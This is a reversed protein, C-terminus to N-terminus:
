SKGPEPFRYDRYQERLTLKSLKGTATHPLSSVFIVDDPLWWRAMRTAMCALIDARDPASGPRAVVLLVPREGWRPHALGIAAAEQVDAHLLAANELEISSIWEGGSKIVDKSRDTIRVLGEADLQAVDGTAFWSERLAGPQATEGFYASAVWAGRVLLEGQSAGDHALARGDGDVVELDVGFLPRGQSEHVRAAVDAPTAHRARAVTAVPSTETMGWAHLVQIGFEAGLADALMPPCAAGGIVLRQLARPARGVRRMAELVALWVTPVGAAVTVGEGDMLAFLSDADLRAGPLVLAAGHMAAAHPLGWANVHFMPVVPLVTDRASLCFADPQSIAMAHLVISRQSYLVGKPLGTTGSTYCLSAAAQEDLRPWAFTEPHGALFSEYDQLGQLAAVGDGQGAAEAPHEVAALGAAALALEAADCLVVWRRVGALSPALRAALGLLQPDLFVVRDGAHQLIHRLQEPFLRPNVTHLVAGMGPIAFYLELHRTSNWALTAVREGPQVGVAQLAGALRAARRACHSWDGRGLSADPLRSVLPANGHWRAAHELLASLLLPQDMMLGQM